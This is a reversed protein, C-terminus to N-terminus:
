RRNKKRLFSISAAIVFCAALVLATVAVFFLFSQAREYKQRSEVMSRVYELSAADAETFGGEGEAPKCTVTVKRSIADAVIDAFQEAVPGQGILTDGGREMELAKVYGQPTKILVVVDPKPDPVKVTDPPLEKEGAQALWSAKSAPKQPLQSIPTQPKDAPSQKENQQAM